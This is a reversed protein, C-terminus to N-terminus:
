QPAEETQQTIQRRWKKNYIFKQIFDETEKIAKQSEKNARIVNELAEKEDPKGLKTNLYDMALKNLIEQQTSLSEIKEIGQYAEVKQALRDAEEQLTKRVRDLERNKLYKAVVTKDGIKEIYCDLCVVGVGKGWLVWDGQKLERKCKLCKCDYKTVILRMAQSSDKATCESVHKLALMVTESESLHQDNALQALLIMSDQSLSLNKAPLDLEGKRFGM